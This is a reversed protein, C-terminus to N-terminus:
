VFSEDPLLRGTDRNYQISGSYGVEGTFRNKLVSIYRQDGDSNEKDVELSICIDSLQAIAHSGRLQGLRVKAGDEHGRDGEPRRLHSVLILGIDIEQVLTRLKTMAMDILKREDNNALGSILISIHDLIVWKVGLAKAMFQIRQCIVDVDSSGFHDYLYVEPKGKDFIDGFAVGIEEDTAKSRDVTINKSMHIGVLGLLTRKNSEELMIMGISEGNQQLHYAIERVFTTKGLGSGACVTVLESTRLGRTIDNLRPYPYTVASLEDAITIVDKLDKAGVIGDPRFSRAQFIANIIEDAKGKMLCENPDKHPLRAIKAFGVPLLEAVTHAAKQGSDDMDFMIICEDFGLIYDWNKKIANKASAAGTPISVTAWRHGQVQSVTMCDIEGECIVLKKGNSWLHSGFLTMKSADGTISFNKNCDRVKQAVVKGKDDRYCALELDLETTLYGFKRCTEETLGRHKLAKVEGKLLDKKVTEKKAQVSHILSNTINPQTTKSCSYCHTHGDDYISRADSSGCDPCSTKRIEKSKHDILEMERERIQL